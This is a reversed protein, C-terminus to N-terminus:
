TSTEKEVGRVFENFKVVCSHIVKCNRQDYLRYGKRNISYGLFICKQAKANLKRREDKSIHLYAACGFVRLHGVKPKEAYIAEYPTKGEVAKTPSRNHLYVATSLAEAWFSKPLESDALMSRVMEMLTRNLREAVGNQEPCKPITLEHKIGEKRLYKEFEKSTFEGGNDTRLTKLSRGLLKEVEAKWECFQEFVDSKQKIVYM